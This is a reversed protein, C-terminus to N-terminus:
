AADHHDDAQFGVGGLYESFLDAHAHVSLGIPARLIHDPLGWAAVLEAAAARGEVALEAVLRHIAKAKTPAVYDDNRWSGIDCWIRELAWQPSSAFAHM